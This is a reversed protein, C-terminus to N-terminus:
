KEANEYKLRYSANFQQFKGSLKSKLPLVTAVNRM